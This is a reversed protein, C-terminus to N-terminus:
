RSAHSRTRGGQFSRTQQQPQAFFGRGGGEGFDEQDQPALASGGQRNRGQRTFDDESFSLAQSDQPAANAAAVRHDPAATGDQTQNAQALQGAIGAVAVVSALGIALKLVQTKPAVAM